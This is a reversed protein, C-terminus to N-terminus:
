LQVIIDTNLLLSPHEKFSSTENREKLSQLFFPMNNLNFILWLPFPLFHYSLHNSISHWNLVMTVPLSYGPFSFCTILNHYKSSSHSPIVSSFYPLLPSLSFPYVSVSHFHISLHSLILYLVSFSFPLHILSSYSFISSRLISWEPRGLITVM